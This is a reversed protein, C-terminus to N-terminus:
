IAFGSRARTPRLRYSRGTDDIQFVKSPLLLTQSFNGWRLLGTELDNGAYKMLNRTPPDIESYVSEFGRRTDAIGIQRYRAWRADIESRDPEIGIAQRAVQRSRDALSAVLYRGRPAAAVLIAVTAVTMGTIATKFARERRRSSELFPFSAQRLPVVRKWLFHRSM